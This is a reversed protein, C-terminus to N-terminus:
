RMLTHFVIYILSIKRKLTIVGHPWSYLISIVDKADSIYDSTVNTSFNWKELVFLKLIEM